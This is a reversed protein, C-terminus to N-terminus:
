RFAEERLQSLYKRKEGVTRLKGYGSLDYGTRRVERAVQDLQGGVFRNFNARRIWPIGFANRVNKLDGASMTPFDYNTVTNELLKRAREAENPDPREFGVDEADDLKRLYAERARRELQAKVRQTAEPDYNDSDSRLEDQYHLGPKRPGPLIAPPEPFRYCGDM